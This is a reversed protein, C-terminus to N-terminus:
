LKNVFVLSFLDFSVIRISNYAHVGDPIFPNRLVFEGPLQDDVLQKGKM